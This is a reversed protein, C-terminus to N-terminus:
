AVASTNIEGAQRALRRNLARRDFRDRVLWRCLGLLECRHEDFLDEGGLLELMRAVVVDLHHQQCWELYAWVGGCDEPPAARGGGVCRPYSRGAELAAVQEVRVDHVWSDFFDYEYVFREALRLGLRDLRVRRADDRFTLGGIHGVGYERGHIVFRHLHEDSWGFSTQLVAHLEAITSESRVLLRRWVLPSVGRLVVRLQYVSPSSLGDLEPM